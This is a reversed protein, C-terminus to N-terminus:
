QRLHAQGVNKGQVKKPKISISETTATFTGPVGCATGSIKCTFNNDSVSVGSPWDPINYFCDIKFNESAVNGPCLKETDFTTYAKKFPPPVGDIETRLDIRCAFDSRTSAPQQAAAPAMLGIVLALAM